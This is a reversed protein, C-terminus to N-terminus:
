ECKGLTQCLQNIHLRDHQATFHAMELLTTRGFISHRAPRKWDEPKLGLTWVITKEREGVFRHVVQWGDRDCPQPDNPGAPPPPSILFPNDETLIRELRPRQVQRESEFLHCLVQVPSWENPYPHQLWYDPRADTMVGFLAGITGRLEPIIMQVTPAHTGVLAFKDPPQVYDHYFRELDGEAQVHFTHLGAQQAPLIDNQLNDGVMITEDPEVGVRALAEIYYAPDPKAFHMNGAHTVLTYHKLCDPLGAWKLRQQVAEPPYLPNTAIVLAIQRERLTEIIRLAIDGVPRTCDKLYTYATNYFDAFAQQIEDLPKRVAEGIIHMAVDQNTQIGERPAALARAVELLVRSMGAFRWRKRFYDDALGLYAQVFATDPNHLLTNDLDLLVAKIM